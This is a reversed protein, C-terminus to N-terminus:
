RIPEGQLVAGTPVLEHGLEGEFKTLGEHSLWPAVGPHGRLVLLAQSFLARDPDGLPPRVEVGGEVSSILCYMPLGPVYKKLLAGLDDRELVIESERM